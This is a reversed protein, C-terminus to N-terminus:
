PTVYPQRLAGKVAVLAGPEVLMLAVAVSTAPLAVWDGFEDTEISFVLGVPDIVAGDFPKAAADVGTVALEASADDPTKVASIWNEWAPAPLQLVIPVRVTAGKVTTQSVEPSM